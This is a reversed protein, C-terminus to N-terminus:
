GSKHPILLVLSLLLALPFPHDGASRPRPGEALNRVRAVVSRRRPLFPRNRKQRAQGRPLRPLPVRKPFLFRDRSSDAPREAAEGGKKGRKLRKRKFVVRSFQRRPKPFPWLDTEFWCQRWRGEGVGFGCDFGVHCGKGRSVCTPLLFIGVPLTTEKPQTTQKEKNREKTRGKPVLFRGRHPTTYRRILLVAYCNFGTVSVSYFTSHCSVPRNTPTVIFGLLSSAVVCTLPQWQSISIRSPQVYAPRKLVCSFVSRERKHRM